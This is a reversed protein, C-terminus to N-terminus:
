FDSSYNDDDKDNISKPLSEEIEEEIESTRQKRKVSSGASKKKSGSAHLRKSEKQQRQMRKDM